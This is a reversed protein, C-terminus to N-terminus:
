LRIPLEGLLVVRVLVGTVLARLRLKRLDVGSVLDDAVLLLPLFEVAAFDIGLALWFELPKLAKAAALAARTEFVDVRAGELLNKRREATTAALALMLLLLRRM